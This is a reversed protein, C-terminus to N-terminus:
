GPTDTQHFGKTTNYYLGLGHGHLQDGVDFWYSCDGNSHFVISQLIMIDLFASQELQPWDQSSFGLKYQKRLERNYKPIFDVSVYAEAQKLIRVSGRVHKRAHKQTEDLIQVDDSCLILELRRGRVDVTVRYELTSSGSRSAFVLTGLISDEINPLTAPKSKPTRSKSKPKM